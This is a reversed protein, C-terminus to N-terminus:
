EKTSRDFQVAEAHEATLVSFARPVWDRAELYSFGLQGTQFWSQAQIVQRVWPTLFTFPCVNLEDAIFILPKCGAAETPVLENARAYAGQQRVPCV